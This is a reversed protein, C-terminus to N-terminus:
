RPTRQTFAEFIQLANARLFEVSEQGIADLEFLHRDLEKALHELKSDKLVPVLTRALSAIAELKLRQRSEFDNLKRIVNPPDNSM